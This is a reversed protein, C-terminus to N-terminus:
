SEMMKLIAWWFLTPQMAFIDMKSKTLVKTNEVMVLSQIARSTPRKNTLRNTSGNSLIDKIAEFRDKDNALEGHITDAYFVQHSELQKPIGSDWTVSGDGAGTAEFVLEYNKFTFLGPEAIKKKLLSTNKENLVAGFQDRCVFNSLTREDKGAIYFVKELQWKKFQHFKKKYAKFEDLDDQNPLAWMSEDTVVQLTKWLEMDGFDHAEEHIPLLQLLGSYRVFVELLEKRSQFIALRSVSKIAGGIGTIIEPIGYSGQWPTGLLICKFNSIANLEEWTETHNMMLDRTVLGGMSHAIIQIPQGTPLLEDNIKDALLKGSVSLSKRWDYPFVLVDFKDNLDEVLKGYATGVVSKATVKDNDINLDTLQGWAMKLYDIWIESNGNSLNSGMIGPILIIIPKKGSVDIPKVSGGPLITTINRNREGRIVTKFQTPSTFPPTTIATFIDRRSNKNKFYCFHDVKGGDVFKYYINNVRVAGMYMSDTDVVFDNDLRYFLRSMITLLTKRIGKIGANGAIISLDSKIKKSHNNIIKQLPSDPVMSELGPLIKPDNRQEVIALLLSKIGVFIPNTKLGTGYGVINLLINLFHDIRKTLITTGAAPCAVRVFKEVVIKKQKAVKNLEKLIKVDKERGLGELLKIEEKSFFSDPDSCRCLVEGILGGRSHSILHLKSNKPLAKLADLANEFPNKTWTRHELALINSGYKECFKDWTNTGEMEGFSGITSSSTGHLFLLLPQSFDVDSNADDQKFESLKFSSNIHVIGENELVGSEIKEALKLASFEAVIEKPKFIKIFKLYVKRVISRNGTPIEMANPILFEKEDSRHNSPFLTKIETSPTMWITGDEFEFEVLDKKDLEEAISQDHSGRTSNIEITRSLEYSSNAFLIHQDQSQTEADKGHLQITLKSAAM